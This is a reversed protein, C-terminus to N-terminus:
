KYASLPVIEAHVQTTFGIDLPCGIPYNVTDPQIYTQLLLDPHITTGRAGQWCGAAPVRQYIWGM